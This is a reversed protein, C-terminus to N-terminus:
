CIAETKVFFTIRTYLNQTILSSIQRSTINLDCLQDLKLQLLVDNGLSKKHHELKWLGASHYDFMILM